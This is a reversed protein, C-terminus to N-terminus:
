NPIIPSISGFYLSKIFLTPVERATWHNLIQAEVAPSMPKLRPQPVLIKCMIHQPWFCVFSGVIGNRPM